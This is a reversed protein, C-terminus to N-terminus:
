SWAAARGFPPLRWRFAAGAALPLFPLRAVALPPSRKGLTPQRSAHSKHTNKTYKLAKQSTTYFGREKLRKMKALNLFLTTSCCHSHKEQSMNTIFGLIGQKHKSIDLDVM